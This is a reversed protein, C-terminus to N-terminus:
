SAMDKDNSHGTRAGLIYSAVPTAGSFMPTALLTTSCMADVTVVFHSIPEEWM